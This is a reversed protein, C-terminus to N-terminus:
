FQQTIISPKFSYFTHTELYRTMNKTLPSHEANFQTALVSLHMNLISHNTNGFANKRLASYLLILCETPRCILYYDNWGEVSGSTKKGIVQFPIIGPNETFDDSELLSQRLRSRIESNRGEPKTCKHIKISQQKQATHNQGSESDRWLAM